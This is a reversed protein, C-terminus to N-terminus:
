HEDECNEPQCAVIIEGIKAQDSYRDTELVADNSEPYIGALNQDGSRVGYFTLDAPQKAFRIIEKSANDRSLILKAPGYIRAAQKITMGPRVGQETKYNPNDTVLYNIPDEDGLKNKSTYPIYFQVKGQKKVAIASFEAAFNDKVELTIGNALSKKLEGFTMGIKAIGISNVTIINLKKLNTAKQLNDDSKDSGKSAVVHPVDSSNVPIDDRTLSKSPKEASAIKNSPSRPEGVASPIALSSPLTKSDSSNPTATPLQSNLVSPSPSATTSPMLSPKPENQSIPGVDAMSSPSPSVAVPSSRTKENGCATLLLLACLVVSIKM